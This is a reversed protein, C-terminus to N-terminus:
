IHVEFLHWVENAPQYHATKIYECDIGITGGTPLILFTREEEMSNVEDYVLAWITPVKGQFQFDIIKSDLPLKLKKGPFGIVYKFITLRM